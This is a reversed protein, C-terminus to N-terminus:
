IKFFDWFSKKTNNPKEVEPYVDCFLIYKNATIDFCVGKIYGEAGQYTNNFNCVEEPTDFTKFILM